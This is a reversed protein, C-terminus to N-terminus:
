RAINIVQLQTFEKLGEEGMEVGVGSQKAGAFPVHPLLEVHKNIWVTGSNMRQALEHARQPNSSWISGGLGYPLGNASALATEPDSYKIVPLVPGFQEEDVLRAGDEIDRVITPRIFYGKEPTTGSEIVTAHERADALLSKVKEFQMRNQLPGFQTGEDLGNGVVATRAIAALEDCMEDYISEHVYLRKLAVCIQGNNRFASEFIKAAVEKPVVDDLVIAADNGGLELTIRKLTATANAMVKRGTETSGTFSIKRVDPHATLEGGLDNADAIVNIVGPPFIDKILEAFRLTSLPTTPAPKLVVTNGALLAPPVRSGILILPFNWPVIVAVVGLPKRRVEVRRDLSDEIVTAPLDLTAYYRWFGAFRQVENQSQRLPKGQEQTLLRSLEDVNTSLADAVQILKQKRQEIPTAGWGPFAAKAAAVAQDLQAKSARPSQAIVEETAPNIVDMTAAGDHLSGDILLKFAKM